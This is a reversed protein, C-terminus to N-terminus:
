EGFDFTLEEDDGDFFADLNEDAAKGAQQQAHFKARETLQSLQNMSFLQGYALALAGHSRLSAFAEASLENLATENIRYLGQVKLPEQGEGREVQLPWPEIVGSDGLVKAAQQTLQRNKEFEQLFKLTQQVREDLQGQADFLPEGQENELLHDEAICLVQQQQETHALTFPYGRLSAPVYNGLWRGDPHVYLNHQGNLGLLAVPQYQEGQQIFGLAYHPLLKGLEALLISAVPQEAAFRYAQRPQYHHEAHHTRSIPIWQLM